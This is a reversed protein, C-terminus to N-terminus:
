FVVETLLDANDVYGSLISIEKNSLDAFLYEEVPDVGNLRLFLLAFMLVTVAAPVPILRRALNGAEAVWRMRALQPKPRLKDKLRALFDEGVTIREKQSILTKTAALSQLQAKCDPCSALHGEVFAILGQDILEKDVYRNLLRKVKGCNM